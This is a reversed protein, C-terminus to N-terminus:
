HPRPGHGEGSPQPPRHDPIPRGRITDPVPGLPRLHRSERAVYDGRYGPGAPGLHRTTRGVYENPYTASLRNRPGRYRGSSWPQYWSWLGSGYPRSTEVVIVNPAAQPPNMRDADLVPMAAPVGEITLTGLVSIKPTKPLDANTIVKPLEARISGGAAALVVMATILRRRGM